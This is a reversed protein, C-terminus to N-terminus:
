TTRRIRSKMRTSESRHSHRKRPRGGKQGNARAAAAKAPTTIAGGKRGLEAMWAKSGFRNAALGAVSFELDRSEWRLSDGLPSLQVREIEDAPVDSLGQMYNIPIGLLTGDLMDILLRRNKRDYSVSKAHPETQLAQKGRRNAEAFQQDLERQSFSWKGMKTKLKKPQAM